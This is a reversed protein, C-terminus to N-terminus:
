VAVIEDKFKLFVAKLREFGEPTLKQKFADEIAKEGTTFCLELARYITDDAKAKFSLLLDVLDREKAALIYMGSFCDEQFRPKRKTKIWNAITSIWRFM